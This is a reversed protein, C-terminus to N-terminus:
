THSDAGWWPGGSASGSYSIKGVDYFANARISTVTSPVYLYSIACDAFPTNGISQLGSNLNVTTLKADFSFVVDGITRMSGPMTISTLSTCNQFAGRKLERVGYPLTVDTLNSCQLCCWDPIVSCNSSFSISKIGSRAFANEGMSTVSNPITVSELRSCNYFAYTGITKVKSPITISELGSAVFCDNPIATLDAPLRVSTVYAWKFASAGITKVTDPIYCSFSTGVYTNPDEGASVFASDAIATPIYYCGDAEDYFKEPIVLETVGPYYGVKERNEATITFNKTPVVVCVPFVEKSETFVTESDLKTGAHDRWHSFKYGDDPTVEPWVSVKGDTGVEITDVSANGNKGPLVTLIIKSTYDPDEVYVPRAGEGETWVTNGDVTEGDQNEWHDLVWGEDPTVDPYTHIKGESTTTVTLIECTGHEGPLIDVTVTLDPKYDPDPKFVPKISDGDDLVTGGDVPNGDQDEWHDFVYGEDPTTGPFPDIKGDPGTTVSGADASGHEGPLVPVTVTKDGPDPEDGGGPNSGDPYVNITINIMINIDIVSGPGVPEGTNGDVFGDTKYGDDPKVDPVVQVVGDPDILIEPDDKPEFTVGPTEPVPVSTWGSKLAFMPRIAGDATYVTSTDVTDGTSADAFHTFDYGTDAVVGPYEAVLGDADPYLVDTDATGHKGPLVAIEIGDGPEPDVPSGGDAFDVTWYVTAISTKATETQLPLKAGVEIPLSGDKEIRWNGSTLAIQGDSGTGDGRFSLALDKTGTPKDSFDSDWDLIAWGNKGESRVAQIEVAKSSRNEIALTRAIQIEGAASMHIPIEAPVVINLADPATVDSELLVDTSNGAAFAQTALGMVMCLSLLLSLFKKM